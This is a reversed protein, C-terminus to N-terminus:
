FTLLHIEGQWLWETPHAVLGKRVPNMRVYEWKESYSESGRLIHDFSDTQWVPPDVHLTAAIRRASVSKTMKLWEARGSANLAPRAFFHVHDPMVVYRGVHWGDAEQARTWIERLCQHVTDNALIARRRAACFTFFYIPYKAFATVHPLRM